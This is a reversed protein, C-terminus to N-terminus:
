VYGEQLTAVRRPNVTLVDFVHLVVCVNPWLYALLLPLWSDLWSWRVPRIIKDSGDRAFHWNELRYEYFGPRELVSLEPNTALPRRRHLSM